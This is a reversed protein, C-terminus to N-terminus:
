FLVSAPHYTPLAAELWSPTLTTRRGSILLHHVSVRSFDTGRCPCWTSFGSRRSVTCCVKGAGAPSPPRAPDWSPPHVCDQVGRPCSSIPLGLQHSNVPHQASPTACFRCLWLTGCPCLQVGLIGPTHPVRGPIPLVKLLHPLSLGPTGPAPVTCSRCAPLFGTNRLNLGTESSRRWPQTAAELSLVGRSPTVTRFCPGQTFGNEAM